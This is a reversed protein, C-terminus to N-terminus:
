IYGFLKALVSTGSKQVRHHELEERPTLLQQEPKLARRWLAFDDAFRERIAVRLPEDYFADWPPKDSMAQLETATTDAHCRDASRTKPRRPNLHGVPPAVDIGAIERLYELDREINRVTGVYDLRQRNAFWAQARWHGDHTEDPTTALFNVFERFSVRESPDRQMYSALTEVIDSGPAKDRLPNAYVFKDVYASVLREFPERVFMFHLYGRDKLLRPTVGLQQQKQLKRVHEHFENSPEVTHGEVALLWQKITTCAVKGIPSYILRHRRSILREFSPLEALRQSKTLM